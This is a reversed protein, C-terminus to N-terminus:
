SFIPQLFDEKRQLLSIIYGRTLHRCAWGPPLLATLGGSRPAPVRSPDAGVGVESERKGSRSSSLRLDGTCLSAPLTRRAGLKLRRRLRATERLAPAARGTGDAFGGESRISSSSHKLTREARPVVYAFAPHLIVPSPSYPVQWLLLHCRPRPSPRRSRRRPRLHTRGRTRVPCTRTTNTCAHACAGVM